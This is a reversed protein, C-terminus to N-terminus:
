TGQRRSKILAVIGFLGLIYGIGGIIDRIRVKEQAKRLAIIEQALPSISDRIIQRIKEDHKLGELPVTDQKDNPVSLQSQSELGEKQSIQQASTHASAKKIDISTKALHGLGANLTIFYGGSKKPIFSFVGNSDTRGQVIIKGSEDRVEVKAGKVKTGGPLYGEVVVKQGDFSSFVIVRHAFSPTNLLCMAVITLISITLYNKFRM